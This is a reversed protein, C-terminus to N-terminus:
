DAKDKGIYPSLFDLFWCHVESQPQVGLTLAVFRCLVLLTLHFYLALVPSLM